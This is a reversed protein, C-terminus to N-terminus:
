PHGPATVKSNATSLWLRRTQRLRLLVKQQKLPSHRFRKRPPQLREGGQSGQSVRRPIRKTAPVLVMWARREVQMVQLPQREAGKQGGGHSPLSMMTPRARARTRASMRPQQQEQLQHRLPRRRSVQHWSFGCHVTKVKTAQSQTAVYRVRGPSHVCQVNGAVM